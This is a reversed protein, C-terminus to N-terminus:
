RYNLFKQISFKDPSQDTTECKALKEIVFRRTDNNQTQSTRQLHRELILNEQM